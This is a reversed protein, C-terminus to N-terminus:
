EFVDTLAKNIKLPNVNKGNYIVEYHLHTATSRGTSGMLGIVSDASVMDGKKVLLKHLHGYRTRFGNQHEIEIFRGFGGNIGARTIVGPAAARVNTKPWGALDVGKHFARKGTIPDKRIGYGSSVYYSDAPMKSPVTTIIQELLAVEAVKDTLAMLHPELGELPVGNFPGGQAQTRANFAAKLQEAQIGANSLASEIHAQRAALKADMEAFQQSLTADYAELADKVTEFSLLPPPTNEPESEPKQETTPETAPSQEVEISQTDNKNADISEITISTAVATDDAASTNETSTNQAQPASADDEPALMPLTDVMNQMLGQEKKLATLKNNLEALKEEFEAQSKELLAQEQQIQAQQAHIHAKQAFFANSAFVTWAVSIVVAIFLLWQVFRGMKFHSVEGRQQIIVKKAPFIHSIQRRM